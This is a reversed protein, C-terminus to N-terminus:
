RNFPYESIWHFGRNAISFKGTPKLQLQMHIKHSDMEGDLTLQDQAPRDYTFSAKWKKDTDKTLALTKKNADISVGYGSFLRTWACNKGACPLNAGSLRPVRLTAVSTRGCQFADTFCCPASQAPNARSPTEASRSLM